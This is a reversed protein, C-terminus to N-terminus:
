NNKTSKRITYCTLDGYAPHLATSELIRKCLRETEPRYDVDIARSLWALGIGLAQKPPLPAYYKRLIGTIVYHFIGAATEAVSHYDSRHYTPIFLLSGLWAMEKTEIFTQSEDLIWMVTGMCLSASSSVLSRTPVNSQKAQFVWSDQWLTQIDGQLTYGQRIPYQYPMTLYYEKLPPRLEEQFDTADLDSCESIDDRVVPTERGKPIWHHSCNQSFARDPYFDNIKCQSSIYPIGKELQLAMKIQEETEPEYPKQSHHARVSRYTINTILTELGCILRSTSIKEPDQALFKRLAPVDGQFGGRAYLSGGGLLWQLAEDSQDKLLNDIGKHLIHLLPILDKHPRRMVARTLIDIEKRNPSDKKQPAGIEWLKSNNYSIPQFNLSNM